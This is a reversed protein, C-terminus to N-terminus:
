RPRCSPNFPGRPLCVTVATGKGPWSELTIEGGAAQVIGLCVSLGLGRGKGVDRTTFFPEFARARVEESMGTGTDTVRLVVQAPGAVEAEV